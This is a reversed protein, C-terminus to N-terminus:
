SGKLLHLYNKLTTEMGNYLSECVFAHGISVEKLFPIQNVLPTINQQNLDHGANISMGEQHIWLAKQHYTELIKASSPTPWKKAFAGTYLEVRDPGLSVLSSLHEKQFLLPDIFLSPRVDYMKLFGIVRKLLSFHQVVDWGQDSTLAQPPDPVLTCQHPRVEKVLHLFEDSPYGEVNLEVKSINHILTGIERVDKYLIHRGDPRPHVTIGFVGFHILDKVVQILCPFDGGRANRLTAIKNVNVSLKIM